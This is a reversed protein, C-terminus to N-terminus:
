IHIKDNSEHAKTKCDFQTVYLWHHNDISYIYKICVIYIALRSFFCFCCCCCACVFYLEIFDIMCCYCWGDLIYISYKSYCHPLNKVMETPTPICVCINMRERVIYRERQEMPWQYLTSYLGKPDINLIIFMDHNYICMCCIIRKYTYITYSITPDTFYEVRERERGRARDFITSKVFCTSFYQQWRPNTYISIYINIHQTHTHTHTHATGLYFFFERWLSCQRRILKISIRSRCLIFLFFFGCILNIELM